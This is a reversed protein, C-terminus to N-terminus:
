RETIRAQLSEIKAQTDEIDIILHPPAQIGFKAEELELIALRRQHAVL